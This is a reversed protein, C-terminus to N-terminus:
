NCCVPKNVVCTAGQTLSVLTSKEHVTVDLSALALSFTSDLEENWVVLIWAARLIVLPMNVPPTLKVNVTVPFM